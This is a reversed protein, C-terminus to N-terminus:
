RISVTFNAVLVRNTDLTYSASSSVVSGNETWKAFTYGSNATGDRHALQRLRIQRRRKGHGHCTAPRM